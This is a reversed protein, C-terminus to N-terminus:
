SNAANFMAKGLSDLAVHDPAENAIRTHGSTKLLHNNSGWPYGIVNTGGHFTIATVFLNQVMLKYVTRGAVTNLCM